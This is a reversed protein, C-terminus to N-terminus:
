NCERWMVGTSAQASRHNRGTNLPIELRGKNCVPTGTACCCPLSLSARIGPGFDVPLKAAFSLFIRESSGDDEICRMMGRIARELIGTLMCGDVYRIAFSVDASALCHLQALKM